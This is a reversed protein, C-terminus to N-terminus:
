DDDSGGDRGVDDDGSASSADDYNFDNSDGIFM